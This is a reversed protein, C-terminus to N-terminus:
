YQRAGSSLGEGKRCGADPQRSVLVSAELMKPKKKIERGPGSFCATNTKPLVKASHLSAKVKSPIIGDIQTFIICLPLVAM